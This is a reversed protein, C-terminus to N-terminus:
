DMGSIGTMGTVSNGCLPSRYLYQNVTHRDAPLNGGNGAGHRAIDKAIERAPIGDNRCISAYIARETLDTTKM